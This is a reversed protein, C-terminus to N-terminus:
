NLNHFIKREVKQKTLDIAIDLRSAGRGLKHTKPDIIPKQSFIEKHHSLKKPSPTDLYEEDESVLNSNIKNELREVSKRDM